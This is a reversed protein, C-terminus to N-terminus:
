MISCGQPNDDSLYYDCRSARCSRSGQGYYGDYCPQPPPPVGYGDYCPGEGYGQSCPGCCTRPPIVNEDYCPGGSRGTTVHVGVMVKRVHGVVHGGRPFYRLADTRNPSIRLPNEQGEQLLLFVSFWGQTGYNDGTENGGNLFKEAM